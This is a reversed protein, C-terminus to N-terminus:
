LPKIGMRDRALILRKDRESWIAIAFMGRLRAFCVTGWELFAELAVETDCDSRFHHGLSELEARVERFNYIEGNYAAITQGDASAFPQDGGGLDIIKLRVAGLAIEPSWYVGQQ